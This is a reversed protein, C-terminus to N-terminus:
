RKAPPQIPVAQPRPPPPTDILAATELADLAQRAAVYHRARVVWDRAKERGPLRLVEVLAVEVQGSDLAQEARRLTEPPM